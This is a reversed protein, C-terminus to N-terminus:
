SIISRVQEIQLAIVEYTGYIGPWNCQRYGCHEIVGGQSYKDTLHDEVPPLICNCAVTHCNICRHLYVEMYTQLPKNSYFALGSINVCIRHIYPHPCCRVYTVVCVIYAAKLGTSRNSSYLPTHSSFLIVKVLASNGGM